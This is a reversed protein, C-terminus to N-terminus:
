DLGRVAPHLMALAVTGAGLLGGVVFVPAPGLADAALGAIAYGVPLFVASGLADISAVRGLRERPVFEQLTNTWDLGLATAAAGFVFLAVGVGVVTIPLGIAVTALAAVLWCGYTLLGRRRLRPAGGLCIAAGIAGTAL